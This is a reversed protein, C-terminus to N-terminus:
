KSSLQTCNACTPASNQFATQCFVFDCYNPKSMKVKRIESCSKTSIQMKRCGKWRFALPKSFAGHQAPGTFHEGSTKVTSIWGGSLFPTLLHCGSALAGCVQPIQMQCPTFTFLTIYLLLLLFDYYCYDHWYNYYYYYYYYYYTTDCIRTRISHLPIYSHLYRMYTHQKFMMM